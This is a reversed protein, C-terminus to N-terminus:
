HRHEGAKQAPFYRWKANFLNYQFLNLNVIRGPANFRFRLTKYYKIVFLFGVRLFFVRLFDRLRLSNWDEITLAIAPM